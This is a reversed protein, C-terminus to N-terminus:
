NSPKRGEFHDDITKLGFEAVQLARKGNGVIDFDGGCEYWREFVPRMAGVLVGAIVRSRLTPLQEDQPGGLGVGDIELGIAKEWKSNVDYDVSQLVSSGTVIRRSRMMHDESDLWSQVVEEFVDRLVAFTAPAGGTRARIVGRFLDLRSETHPFVVKEKSKFHRFFTRRSVGAATAIQDVTVNDFGHEEFLSFAADVLRQRTEERRGDAM